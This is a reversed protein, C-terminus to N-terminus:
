MWPMIGLGTSDPSAGHRRERQLRRNLRGVIRLGLARQNQERGPGLRPFQAADQGTDVVRGSGPSALEQCM